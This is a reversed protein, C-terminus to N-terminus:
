NGTKSEKFGKGVGALFKAVFWEYIKPAKSYTEEHGADQVYNLQRESAPTEKFLKQVEESRALDDKEGTIYLVPVDKIQRVVPVLDLDNEKLSLGTLRNYETLCRNLFGPLASFYRGQTRRSVYARINALPSDAIVAQVDPCGVAARLACIAGLSFGFFVVPRQLHKEKKLYDVAALYDQAELVGGSLPSVGSAGSGRFDFMLVQYGDHVLFQARPLVQERNKTFGHTLIVTGKGKRASPLWWGSLLVGDKDKFTVDQYTLGYQQRPNETLPKHVQAKAYISQAVKAPLIGYIFYLGGAILLAVAGLAPGLIHNNKNQPTDKKM